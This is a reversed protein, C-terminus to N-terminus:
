NKRAKSQSSAKARAQRRSQIERQQLEKDKMALKANETQQKLARDANQQQVGNEFKERELRHKEVEMADPIGNDNSDGDKFTMTNFEGKVMELDEKRDYEENMFNVKLMNDYDAFDKKRQDAAAQAEEENKATQEEIRQQIEEIEKLKTRMEAVNDMLVIESITSPKVNNQLMATIASEMKNKRSIAESSSEVLIGLDANCYTNPDIDVLENGYVDNSYMGKVGDVNVFKSFDLIGQLEKETFEEFLNFIMDTIVTSQFTARENVGVLDSAYTQGKRQRNIGLVDDWQQKFHDQLEILQKINEFLTMDVVTYQNWSKDVGIQNRRLLGYGLAESYYFFKEENWDGENPIAAQDILLIKGKSKAICLELTRTVIIYMIQFPIGIEMPSINESETDSYNRGNYPLKTYSFNNMSNRQVPIPQLRVYKDPGIRWGEYGENPWIDEVWEGMEKDVPYDEDVRTEQEEGTQPDLYHLVKINKRSKWCAHMVEVLGDTNAYEAIATYFTQPTRFQANTELDIIDQKSIEEYFEDVIDSVTMLRRCVQWESDEIFDSDPSKGFKLNKPSIREYTFSGHSLGKYSRAEGVILWDKFMKGFKPRISYERIARRMWKQGKIAIADKYTAHFQKKVEEPVPAPQDAQEALQEPNMQLNVQQQFYAETSTQMRKNLAETYNIYGAEGLNNVTYIFPRRPYEAMLLDLNTRLITVPRVKAPFAKHAPIKASLPDTVHTFWHLPFHNNYVDYLTDYDKSGKGTGFNAKSIFYDVNQKFWLNDSKIKETWTLTQLPKITTSVDM